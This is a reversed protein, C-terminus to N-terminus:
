PAVGPSGRRGKTFTQPLPHNSLSATGIHSGQSSIQHRRRAARRRLLRSINGGGSQEGCSNEIIRSQLGRGQGDMTRIQRDDDDASLPGDSQEPWRPAFQGPTMGTERRFMPTLHSQDAFGARQGIEALLENTRRVGLSVASPSNYYQHGTGLSKTFQL